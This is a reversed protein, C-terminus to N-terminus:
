CISRMGALRPWCSRYPSCGYGCSRASSAAPTLSFMDANCGVFLDAEGAGTGVAGDFVTARIHNLRIAERLVARNAPFPEVCALEAEPFRSAFFMTAAGINAGLDLVRKIGNGSVGYLCREFVESLVKLDVGNPRIPARMGGPLHLVFHAPALAALPARRSLYWSLAYKVRDLRNLGLREGTAWLSRAGAISKGIGMLAIKDAPPLLTCGATM